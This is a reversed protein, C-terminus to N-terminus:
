MMKVTVRRVLLAFPFDGALGDFSAAPAARTYYTDLGHALVHSTSEMAAPATVVGTHLGCSSAGAATELDLLWIRAAPLPVLDPRRECHEVCKWFHTGQLRAVSRSYTAFNQPSLLLLPSFPILREEQEAPTMEKASKRPRRPDLFRKDM